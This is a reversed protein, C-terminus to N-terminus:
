GRLVEVQGFGVDTELALTPADARTGAVVVTRSVHWGDDHITLLNADGGTVDAKIVLRAGRPVRVTLKGIGMSARVNTTGPPLGLKHLDLELNGIAQRYRDDLDRITAPTVTRDGIPGRLPVDVATVGVLAAALVAGVVALAGVGGFFAGVAVAVGVFAVGGALALTWDISAADTTDLIALVAAAATLVGVVPFFIPFRRRRTAAGTGHQRLRESDRRGLQWSVIGLGIALTPIWALDPASWGGAAIGCLLSFAILGVGVVFWPRGRQKKVAEAVISEGRSEDPIVLWAIGYLVIGTGGLLSLAAFAIRYVLPNIDFYAGLGAAVGAVHRGETPRVLKREAETGPATGATATIENM